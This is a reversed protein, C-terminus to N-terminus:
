EGRRAEKRRLAAIRCELSKKSPNDGLGDEANYWSITGPQHLHTELQETALNMTLYRGAKIAVTERCQFCCGLTLAPVREGNVIDALRPPPIAKLPRQKIANSM